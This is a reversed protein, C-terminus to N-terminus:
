QKVRTGGTYSSSGFIYGFLSDSSGSNGRRSGVFPLVMNTLGSCGYFAGYGISTVSDPITVSTLGSCGSFARDGISTVGDPITVSTLGSCGSFASSGISTVGNPITVGTLWSRDYFAGNGISTVRYGGLSSPIAISGGTSSPVAMDSLSAKGNSVTYTWTIGDVIATDATSPLAACLSVIASLVVSSSRKM